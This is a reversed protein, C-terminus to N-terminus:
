FNRNVQLLGYVLPKFRMQKRAYELSCPFMSTLNEEVM